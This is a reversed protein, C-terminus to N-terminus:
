EAEEHPDTELHEDHASLDEREEAMVRERRRIFFYTGAMAATVAAFTTPVTAM